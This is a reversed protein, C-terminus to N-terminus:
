VTWREHTRVSTLWFAGLRSQVTTTAPSLLWSQSCTRWVPTPSPMIMNCSFPRSRRCSDPLKLRGRLRHWVAGTLISPKGLKWCTWASWGNGTGFVTYMEKGGSPANQIKEQILFKHRMVRHATTKAGVQLSVVDGWQYHHTIWSVTRNLNSFPNLKKLAKM